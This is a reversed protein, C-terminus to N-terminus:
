VGMCDGLEVWTRSGLWAGSRLVVRPGLGAQVNARQSIVKMLLSVFQKFRVRVRARVMVMVIIMIMIMIM